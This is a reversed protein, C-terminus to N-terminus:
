SIIGKIMGVEKKAPKGTYRDRLEYWQALVRNLKQEDTVTNPDDPDPINTLNQDLYPCHIVLIGYIRFKTADVPEAAPLQKLEEWSETTVAVWQTKPLLSPLPPLQFPLM